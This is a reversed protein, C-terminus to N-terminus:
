QAGDVGYEVFHQETLFDHVKIPKLGAQAMDADIAERPIQQAPTPGWPREEWPKPIYDIIVVRGGTALGARLRKAYAARDQIYHITDVMLITDVGGPPLQPDHREVKVLEVNELQEAQLRKELYDLMEQAIDIAWVIGTSGVARAIRVTFYGSGAGIDAVREGPKFALAEMVQDPKQFEAREERELMAIYGKAWAARVIARFREEGRLSEFDEDQRLQQAYWFGADVAKQLYEYAKLRNGVLAHLAAINYLTNLHRPRVLENMEEAIELARGYDESNYAALMEAELEDFDALTAGEARGVTLPALTMAVAVCWGFASLSRRGRDLTFM